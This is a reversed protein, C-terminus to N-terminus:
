GSHTSPHGCSTSPRDILTALGPYHLAIGRKDVSLDAQFTGSRYRIIAGFPAPKICEYDQRSVRVALSPMEIFAMDFDFSGRELLGERLIPMMNTVPSYGVDCDFAYSLSETDCVPAELDVEGSEEVSYSWLGGSTRHLELRRNWGPVQTDVTIASTVYREVTSLEYRFWHPIPELAVGIASAFLADGEIRVAATEVGFVARKDWVLQGLCM